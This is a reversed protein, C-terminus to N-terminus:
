PKRAHICDPSFAQNADGEGIIPSLSVHDLSQQLAGTDRANQLLRANITRPEPDAEGNVYLERTAVALARADAAAYGAVRRYRM